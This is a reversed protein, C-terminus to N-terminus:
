CKGKQLSTVTWSRDVYLKTTIRMLVNCMSTIQTDQPIMAVGIPWEFGQVAAENVILIGERLFTLTDKINVNQLGQITTNIQAGTMRNHWHFGVKLNFKSYYNLVENYYPEIQPSFNGIIILVGKQKPYYDISNIMDVRGDPMNAITKAPPRDSHVHYAIHKPSKKCKTYEKETFQIIKKSNRLSYQFSLIKFTNQIKYNFKCPHYSAIWVFRNELQCLKEIATEEGSTDDIKNPNTIALEDM